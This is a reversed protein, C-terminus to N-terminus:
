SIKSVFFIEAHIHLKHLVFKIRSYSIILLYDAMKPINSM